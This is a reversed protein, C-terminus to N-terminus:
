KPKGPWATAIFKLSNYINNGLRTSSLKSLRGYLTEDKQTLKCSRGLTIPKLMSKHSVRGEVNYILHM